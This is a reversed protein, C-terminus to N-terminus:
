HPTQNDLFHSNGPSTAHSEDARSSDTSTAPSEGSVQHQTQRSQTSPEPTNNSSLSSQSLTQQQPSDLTQNTSHKDQETFENNAVEPSGTSNPLSGDQQQFQSQSNVYQLLPTLEWGTQLAVKHWDNDLQQLIQEDARVVFWWRIVRNTPGSAASSSNNEATKYKRKIKLQDM